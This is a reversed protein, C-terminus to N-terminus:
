QLGNGTGWISRKICVLTNVYVSPIKGSSGLAGIGQKPYTDPRGMQTPSSCQSVIPRMYALVDDIRSRRIKRRNSSLSFIFSVSSGPALTTLTAKALPTFALWTNRQFPCYSRPSSCGRLDFTAVESTGSVMAAPGSAGSPAAADFDAGSWGHAPMIVISNGPRANSLMSPRDCTRLRPSIAFLCIRDTKERRKRCAGPATRARCTAAVWQSKLDM